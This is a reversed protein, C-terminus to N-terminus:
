AEELMVDDIEPNSSTPVVAHDVGHEDMTEGLRRCPETTPVPQGEHDNNLHVHGDVLV